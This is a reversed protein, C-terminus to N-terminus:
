NLEDENDIERRERKSWYLKKKVWFGNVYNLFKLGIVKDEEM